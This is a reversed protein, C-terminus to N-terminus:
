LYKKLLQVTIMTTYGLLGGLVASIFAGLYMNIDLTSIYYGVAYCVILILVLAILDINDFSNM